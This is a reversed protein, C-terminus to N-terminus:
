AAVPRRAGDSADKRTPRKAELPGAPRNQRLLAAGDAIVSWCSLALAKRSPFDAPDLPEHLLITARMGRWKALRWCHTAIDMDGFWAFIPRGARGVPMGGLRDYVLSVPQVIPIAELPVPVRDRGPLPKALSFFGAHFPLVRSGDSSTGEPFLILDDGRRLREAMAEGERAARAPERSVFATRGLRAVTGILPWSGVESKAVFAAELQGGLVPVDVWSSHNSVFLVPRRGARARVAGLDGVVRVQMGMIRCVSAWYIRAFTIKGRGPVALMLRQIAFSVLTWAVIAIIRLAARGGRFARRPASMAARTLAAAAAVRPRLVADKTDRRGLRRPTAHM